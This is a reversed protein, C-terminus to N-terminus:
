PKHQDQMVWASADINVMHDNMALQGLSTQALGVDRRGTVATDNSGRGADAAAIAYQLRVAGKTATPLLRLRVTQAVGSQPLEITAPDNDRCVIVYTTPRAAPGTQGSLERTLRLIVAIPQRLAEGKGAPAVQITADDAAYWSLPGAVSEHLAFARAIDQRQEPSVVVIPQQAIPAVSREVPPRGGLFYGGAVLLGGLVAASAYAAIQWAVHAVKRGRQQQPLTVITTPPEQQRWPAIAQQLQLMAHLETGMESNVLVDALEHFVEALVRNAEATPLEGDVLQSLRVKKEESLSM